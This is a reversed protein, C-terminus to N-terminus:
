PCGDLHVVVGAEGHTREGHLTVLLAKQNTPGLTLKGVHSVKSWLVAPGDDDHVYLAALSSRHPSGCVENASQTNIDCGTAHGPV